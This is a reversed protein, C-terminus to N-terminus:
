TSLWTVENKGELSSGWRDKWVRERRCRRHLQRYLDSKNVMTMMRVRMAMAKTDTNKM